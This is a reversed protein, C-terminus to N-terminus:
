LFIKVRNVTFGMLEMFAIEDKNHKHEDTIGSIILM